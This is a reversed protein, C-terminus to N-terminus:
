KIDVCECPAICFVQRHSAEVLKGDGPFYGVQPTTEETNWIAACDFWEWCLGHTALKGSPHGSGRGKPKLM